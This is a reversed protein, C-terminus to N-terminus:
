NMKRYEDTFVTGDYDNLLPLHDHHYAYCLCKICCASLKAKACIKVMPAEKFASLLLHDQNKINLCIYVYVCVCILHTHQISLEIKQRNRQRFRKTISVFICEHPINLNQHMRNWESLM